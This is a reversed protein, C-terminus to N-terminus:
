LNAAIRTFFLSGLPERKTESFSNNGSYLFHGPKIASKQRKGFEKTRFATTQIRPRSPPLPPSPLLHVTQETGVPPVRTVLAIPAPVGGSWPPPKGSPPSIPHQPSAGRPEPLQTCCVENRRPSEFRGATQLHFRMQM